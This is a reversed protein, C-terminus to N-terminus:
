TPVQNKTVACDHGSTKVRPGVQTLPPLALFLLCVTSSFFPPLASINWKETVSFHKHLGLQKRLTFSWKTLGIIETYICRTSRLWSCTTGILDVNPYLTPIRIRGAERLSNWTSLFQCVSFAKTCLCNLGRITLRFESFSNYLKELVRLVKPGQLAALSDGCWFAWNNAQLWNM